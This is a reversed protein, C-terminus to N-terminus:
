RELAVIRQPAMISLRRPDSNLHIDRPVFFKDLAVHIRVDGKAPLSDPDLPLEITYQEAPPTIIASIDKPAQGPVLLEARVGWHNGYVNFLITRGSLEVKPRARLLEASGVLTAGDSTIWGGSVGEILLTPRMYVALKQSFANVTEMLVLDHEAAELLRPEVKEMSQNFPMSSDQEVSGPETLIVFDAARIEDIAAQEAVPSVSMGLSAAVDLFIGDHEYFVPGLMTPYLYDHIRDIAIRPNMWGVKASQQGIQEYLQIIKKVDEPHDFRFGQRSVLSLNVYAGACLAIAALPGTMKAAVQGASGRWQRGDVVALVTIVLLGILPAVLVNGVVPSPSPFATLVLLPVLLCVFLFLTTEGGHIQPHLNREGRRRGSWMWFIASILLICACTDLFVPGLHDRFLSRPYYTLSDLTGKVGFEIDRYKNEQSRIHGLYYDSIAARDLWVIPMVLIAVLVGCAALRKIRGRTEIQGSTDHKQRILRVVLGSLLAFGILVITPATLFRFLILLGAAFATALSWPWSRFLSSRIALCVFSGFLCAATSDIRFDTLGGAPAYRTITALLLGLGLFAVSWRNSAWRLTYVLVLQFIAFYLFNICLAGFRSPGLLFFGLAAQVHLMVGQPVPIRLGYMLGQLPGQTLMHSFTAYSRQLYTIQDFSTPYGWLIERQAFQVFLAWECLLIFLVFIWGLPLYLPRDLFPQAPQPLETIPTSDSPTPQV